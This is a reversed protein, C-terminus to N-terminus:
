DAYSAIISPIEFAKGIITPRAEVIRRAYDERCDLAKAFIKRFAAEDLDQYSCYLDEVGFESLVETYKQHGWGFTIPPVGMSLASIMSHFRSAVLLHLTGIFSRLVDAPLDEDLFVGKDGGVLQMVELCFGRDNNHMTAAGEIYSHPILVPLFGQQSVEDVVKVLFDIYDRGVSKAKKYIISNPTIGVAVKKSDVIQRVLSDM